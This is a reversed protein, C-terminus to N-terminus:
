FLPKKNLTKWFEVYKEMKKHIEKLRLLDDLCHRIIEEKKDEEGQLFQLYLEQINKGTVKLNKSLDLFKSVEDLKNSSLKLNERCFRCLDVIKLRFLVTADVQHKVARTLLFPIDFSSNWVYIEEDKLNELLGMVEELVQKEEKPRSVFFFKEEGNSLILGVCVLIGIDGTLNTTEIDLYISM